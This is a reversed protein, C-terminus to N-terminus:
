PKAAAPLRKFVLPMGRGSQSWEGAIEAGDATLQGTFAGNISPTEFHVKGGTETLASIPIRAAGQDFSVLVGGLKGASDATLELGLRLEMSPMPVIAGRWNGALGKGAVGRAPVVERAIPAPKLKRELRFPLSNGAQSFDGTITKADPALKGTFRPEGPIGSMAFEVTGGDVRVPDLKFGRLGQMPIDIAGQWASDGAPTLEVGVGLQQQNPLTIAGEWYGAASPSAPADDAAFLASCLFTLVVTSGLFLQHLKM